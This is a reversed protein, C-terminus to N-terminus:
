PCPHRRGRYIGTNPDYSKFRQMCYSEDAENPPPPAAGYYGPPPGYARYYPGPGYGYYYPAAIAGGIV